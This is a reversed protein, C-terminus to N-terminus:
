LRKCYNKIQNQSYHKDFQRELDRIVHRWNIAKSIRHKQALETIYNKERDGLPGHYLKPNLINNWYNSIQNKTYKPMLSSILAFPDRHHGFEKMYQRILNKDENNFLAM